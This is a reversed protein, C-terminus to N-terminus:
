CVYLTQKAALCRGANLFTSSVEMYESAQNVVEDYYDGLADAADNSEQQLTTYSNSASESILEIKEISELCITEPASIDDELDFALSLDNQMDIMECAAYVDTVAFGVSALGGIVPIMSTGADAVNRAIMKKGMRKTKVSHSRVLNKQKKLRGQQEAVKAKEKSYPTDISFVSSLGDSIGDLILANTTVMVVSGIWIIGIITWKTLVAGLGICFEIILRM